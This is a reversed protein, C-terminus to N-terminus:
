SPVLPVRIVGVIERTDGDGSTVNDLGSDGGIRRSRTFRDDLIQGFALGDGLLDGRARSKAPLISLPDDFVKLLVTTKHGKGVKSGHGKAAGSGRARAASGVSRRTSGEQVDLM